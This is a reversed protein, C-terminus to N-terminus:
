DPRSYGPRRRTGLGYQTYPKPAASDGFWVTRLTQAGGHGWVMRHTLNPRRQTELGYEAYPKPAEPDGFWVTHLTQAGRFGWVM